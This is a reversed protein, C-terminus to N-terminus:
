YGCIYVSVQGARSTLQLHAQAKSGISVCYDVDAQSCCFMGLRQQTVVQTSADVSGHHLMITLFAHPTQRHLADQHNAM